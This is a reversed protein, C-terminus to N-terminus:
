VKRYRTTAEFTGDPLAQLEYDSFLHPAEKQM